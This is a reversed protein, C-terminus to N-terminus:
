CNDAHVRGYTEPDSLYLNTEPDIYLRGMIFADPFSTRLGQAQGLGLDSCLIIKPKLRVTQTYGATGSYLGAGIRGLRASQKTYGTGSLLFSQWGNALGNGDFGNEFSPNTLLNPAVTPADVNAAKAVRAQVTLFGVLLGVLVVRTTRICTM